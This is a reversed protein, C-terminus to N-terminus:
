GGRISQVVATNRIGLCLSPSSSTGQTVFKCDSKLLTAWQQVCKNFLKPDRHGGVLAMFLVPTFTNEM